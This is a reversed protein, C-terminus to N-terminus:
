PQGAIPLVQSRSSVQNVFGNRVNSLPQPVAAARKRRWQDAIRATVAAEAVRLLQAAQPRARGLAAEERPRGGHLRDANSRQQRAGSLPACRGAGGSAQLWTAIGRHSLSM